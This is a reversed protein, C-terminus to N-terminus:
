HGYRMGTYALQYRYHCSLSDTFRAGHQNQRPTALGLDVQAQEYLSGCLLLYLKEASTSVIYEARTPRLNWQINTVDWTGDQPLFRPTNLDIIYMGRPSRTRARILVRKLNSSSLIRV